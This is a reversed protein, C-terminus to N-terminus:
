LIRQECLSGGSRGGQWQGWWRFLRRELVEIYGSLQGVRRHVILKCIVIKLAHLQLRLLVDLCRMQDRVGLDVGNSLLVYWMGDSQRGLIIVSGQM